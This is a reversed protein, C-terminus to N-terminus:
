TPKRAPGGRMPNTACSEVMRAANHISTTKLPNLAKADVAIFLVDGRPFIGQCRAQIFAVVAEKSSSFTKKQGDASRACLRPDFALNVSYRLLQEQRGLQQPGLPCGAHFSFKSRSSLQGYGLNQRGGSCTKVV